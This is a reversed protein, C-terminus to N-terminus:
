AQQCSLLWGLVGPPCERGRRDEAWQECECYLGACCGDWDPTVETGPWVFVSVWAMVEAQSFRARRHCVSGHWQWTKLQTKNTVPRRPRARRRHCTTTTTTTTTSATTHQQQAADDDHALMDRTLRRVLRKWRSPTRHATLLVPALALDIHLTRRGLAYTLIHRRLEVPLNEFAGYNSLLRCSEEPTNDRASVTLRRPRPSPLFPPAASAM